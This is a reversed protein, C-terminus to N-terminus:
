GAVGGGPKMFLYFGFGMTARGWRMYGDRWARSRELRTVIAADDPHRAAEREIEMRHSWEFHDWEDESSVTAYLPVLGRAEAFTINQAHAHYIGCPEGLLALYEAAPPQKWYGEGILLQGGPRVLRALEELANPYAADGTGFAHTSGICLALDFSGAALSADDVGSSRFEHSTDAIRSAARDRATAIAAPDIDIGLGQAGTAEILRILFEGTGCGADLVRAGSPLELVRILRDAKVSSIPSNFNV